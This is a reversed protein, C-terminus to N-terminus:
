LVNYSLGDKSVPFDLPLFTLTLLADAVGGGHTLFKFGDSFGM